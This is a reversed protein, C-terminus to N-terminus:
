DLLGAIARALWGQAAPDVPPPPAIAPCALCYAQAGRVGMLREVDQAMQATLQNQQLAIRAFLDGGGRASQEADGILWQRLLTDYTSPQTGLFRPHWDSGLEAQAATWQLAEDLGGYEDVLKLQRATGGDWVRGQGVADVQDRTMGRSKAVRSLFDEYGNEITAQLLQDTQPTLGGILDPQGSLPTTRVGDTTVGIMAATKEFTPLVAFIGISGTITEPEAFIRDAPTSVWYGGSAAVNAMSVAIPIDRAKHRLIADRIMESALVSGGPSDVRVVLGALDAELAEDLLGAIRDGGATGPGADGDVIEGAVTIVGIPRGTQAVPNDELWAALDTHPYANPGDGWEDEGVLEVVRRDFEARTGLKDVLGAQLAATALDGKAATIWEVPQGTVRAIDAGPRAKKLNARYEEWLTEYLARANERAPESMDTRSYPEVASKYEGVKYIHADVKLKDLLGAYYMRQGGPGAVIAGGLPNVWVESAHAALTMADDAYATAYTLVPKQAARVRDLAEGIEQMNVQGGGLFRDLDLVVADIREDRAAEDLARIVDRAQYEGVPATGSLLAAFPDIETREEVVTGDLAILLAGDRVAAPSPRATLVAFLAFFFLLMFVLVLGDKIGVLLRWVRGAFQM